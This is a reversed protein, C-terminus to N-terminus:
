EGFEPMERDGKDKLGQHLMEIGLEIAIEPKWGLVRDAKSNDALTDKPELRAEIYEKPYDKGGVLEAVYNISKNSGYGINFVEGAGIEQNIAALFNANVIDFVHTFDRTQNGDGTITLPKGEKFQKFFKAIVLAYAGNDKQGPGYVNFYRLCVTPLGYVQSWVKCYVEGVYKHAGYPSKPNAPMTEVLPMIPQDGYASSSASYIFKKVSGCEKSAILVNMTGTINVDHTEVPNEISFGVRPLAATHFVYDPQVEKFYKKMAALNRIDHLFFKAGHPVREPNSNAANDVIYVEWGENMLREALNSGIFGLGGTIIAKIKQNM